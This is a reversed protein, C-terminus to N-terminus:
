CVEFPAQGHRDQEDDIMTQRRDADCWLQWVVLTWWLDTNRAFSLVLVSHESPAIRTWIIGIALIGLYIALPIVDGAALLPPSRWRWQPSVNPRAFILCWFSIGGIVIASTHAADLWPTALHYFHRADGAFRALGGITFGATSISAFTTLVRCTPM